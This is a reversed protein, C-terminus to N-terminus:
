ISPLLGDNINNPSVLSEIYVTADFWGMEHYIMFARATGENQNYFVVDRGNLEYVVNGNKKVWLLRHWFKGGPIPEGINFRLIRTWSVESSYGKMIWAECFLGGRYCYLCLWDGLVKLELKWINDDGTLGPLPVTELFKEESLDFSVMVYKISRVNEQRLVLWHLVGNASTGRGRLLVGCRLDQITRWINGKLTLVEVKTESNSGDSSNTSTSIYGKVIKYDDLKVDYGFGYFASDESSGPIALERSSPTALERSERTSPNWIYILPNRHLLGCVLGNCSGLIEIYSNQDSYSAPFNLQATLLNDDADFFAEPDISLHPDASLFIKYHNANTDEKARKLHEKAFGPHSILSRWTKSVCKFRVLSKVPLRSLIDSIIESPLKPIKGPMAGAEAENTRSRKCYSCIFLSHCSVKM